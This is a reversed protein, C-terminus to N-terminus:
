ITIIVVVIITIIIIIIVVVVVVVFVLIFKYRQTNHCIPVLSHSSFEEELELTLYL